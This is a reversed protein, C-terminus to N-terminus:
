HYDQFARLSPVCIPVCEKVQTGTGKATKLFPNREQRREEFLIAIWSSANRSHTGRISQPLTMKKEKKLKAKALRLICKKKM